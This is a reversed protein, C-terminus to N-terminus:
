FHMELSRGGGGLGVESLEWCTLIIGHSRSCASVAHAELPMEYDLQLM